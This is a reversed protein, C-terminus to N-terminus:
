VVPQEVGVVTQPLALLLPNAKESNPVVVWVRELVRAMDQLAASARESGTRAVHESLVSTLFDKAASFYTCM